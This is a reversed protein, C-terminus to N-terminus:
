AGVQSGHENRQVDVSEPALEQTSFGPLATDLYIPITFKFAAGRGVESEVWIRGGHREVVKRCLALGIGSGPVGNGDLRGFMDFVRAADARDIGIGNDRVSFQWREGARVASVHINPVAEGRYKISNGILNQFVQLVMVEDAAVTPLPDSTVIARSQRIEPQLNLLAQSLLHNCDVPSLSEGSRETVEWYRVLGKLIAEMKLAGAVSYSLYKDADAGLKGKSEQALLETSDLVMRLPEQLGHTLVYAFSRLEANTSELAEGARKRDTIDVFTGVAGRSQRTEDFLPVANGLWCQSTGDDFVMDFEYDHVPQGSRAAMQMPLEGAPIDRGDRVERWTKPTERESVSESVSAGAPVRLLEYAMRNGVMRRCEADHAIFVGVPVAEMVAVIEEYRKQASLDTVIVCHCEAGDLIVNQVSLYVPVFAAGDPSLRVEAKRRGTRSLLESVIHADEPAVVDLIRSGIVRELPSRLMSAFQKNSFLILGDLTLTLAGEAMEQVMIRYTEDAGKLTYVQDGEPGPAVIADVEGSRLARLTEEAEDLRGQLDRLRDPLDQQTDPPM